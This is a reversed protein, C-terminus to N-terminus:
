EEILFSERVLVILIVFGIAVICGTASGAVSPHQKASSRIHHVAYLGTGPIGASTYMGRRNVGVHLGRPRVSLGAGHLGLNVRIGPAIRISRRFRLLMDHFSLAALRCRM